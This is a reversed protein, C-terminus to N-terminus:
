ELVMLETNRISAVFYPIKSNRKKLLIYFPKDFILRKPTESVEIIGFIEDKAVSKFSVGKENMDLAISQSSIDLQYQKGGTSFPKGVLCDYNTKLNFRIKPVILVDGHNFTTRWFNSRKLRLSDRISYHQHILDNLEKPNKPKQQTRFLLVNDEGQTPLEILFNEDDQYDIINVTYSRDFDKYDVIGFSSVAQGNFQLNNKLDEYKYVYQLALEIKTEVRIGGDNYTIKSEYDNPKLAGRHLVSANLLALDKHKQNVFISDKFFTKIEDWALSKTAAYLTNHTDHFAHELTPIFETEKLEKLDHPDNPFSSILFSSAFLLIANKM